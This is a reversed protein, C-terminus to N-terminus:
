MERSDYLVRFTNHDGADTHRDTHRYPQDRPVVTYRRDKTPSSEKDQARGTASPHGSIYVMGQLDVLWTL